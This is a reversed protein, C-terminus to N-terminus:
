RKFPLGLLILLEKAEQDNFASTVMTISMGFTKESKASDIEVFISQDNIGLNYNGAGDFSKMGFGRFDKIRPCAVNIFRDLFEYMIDKRLTVSVGIPMGERLKFNSIAKRARTIKPLQGTILSLDEKVKDLIKADEKAQGVGVNIVIKELKPCRLANSFGFKDKLKGIIEQKYATKLRPETKNKNNM